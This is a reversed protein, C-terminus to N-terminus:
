KVYMLIYTITSKSGLCALFCFLFSDFHLDEHNVVLLEVAVGGLFGERTV